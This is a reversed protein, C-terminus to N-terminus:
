LWSLWSYLCFITTGILHTSPALFIPSPKLLFIPGWISFHLFYLRPVLTFLRGLSASSEQCAQSEGQGKFQLTRFQWWKVQGVMHKALLGLHCKWRVHWRRQVSLLGIRMQGTVAQTHVNTSTCTCPVEISKGSAMTIKMDKLHVIHVSQVRLKSYWIQDNLRMSQWIQDNVKAVM